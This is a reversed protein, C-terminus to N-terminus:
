VAKNMTQEVTGTSEQRLVTWIVAQIDMPLLESELAMELVADEILRYHKDSAKVEAARFMWLDVTVRYSSENNVMNDYFSVTKRGRLIHRVEDQNKADLIALAKRRNMLFTCVKTDLSPKSLFLEADYLNREWKNNPSLAAIIGATVYLPKNHNLSLQLAHLYATPYWARGEAIQQESARDFIAQLRQKIMKKKILDFTKV